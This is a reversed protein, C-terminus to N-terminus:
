IRPGINMQVPGSRLQAGLLAHEILRQLRAAGQDITTLLKRQDTSLVTDNLVAASGIISTLPTLLEHSARSL